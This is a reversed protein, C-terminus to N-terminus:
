LKWGPSGMGGEVGIHTCLPADGVAGWYGFSRGEGVLRETMGAENGKSWGSECLEARYVCPNLSFLRRHEVWWDHPDLDGVFSELVGGAAKEQENWPQRVLVMNAVRPTRRLVEAMARLTDADVDVLFDEELHFVWSGPRMVAWGAGVASALGQRPNLHVTAWEDPLRKPRPCGDLTIVKRDFFESGINAQATRLTQELYDWRGHSTVLLTWTM